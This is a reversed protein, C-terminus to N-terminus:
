GEMNYLESADLGVENDESPCEDGDSSQVGDEGVLKGGECM